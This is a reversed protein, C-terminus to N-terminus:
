PAPPSEPISGLAEERFKQAKLLVDGVPTTGPALTGEDWRPLKFTSVEHADVLTGPHLVEYYFDLPFAEYAPERVEVERAVERYQVKGKDDRIPGMRVLRVGYDAFGYDLPTVGVYKEDVWVPAGAPESRLLMKKEVCGLASLLLGTAVCAAALKLKM